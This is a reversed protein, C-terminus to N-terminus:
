TQSGDPDIINGDDDLGSEDDTPVEALLKEAETEEDFEPGLIERRRFEVWLTDLSLDGMGRLKMLHEPSKNDIDEVAFDTFVLVDPTVTEGLWLATLRMANELADKLQLAWAQVASNGKAAAVATTIVTLNGSQATLPQRGLERLEKTTEKIDEALFKLTAADTGIWEWVGHNGDDDAPAYLM